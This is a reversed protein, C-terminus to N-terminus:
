LGYRKKTANYNQKIEAASLARNYFKFLAINGNVPESYSGGSSLGFHNLASITYTSIATTNTNNLVGNINIRAVFVSSPKSFTLTYHALGLSVIQDGTLTSGAYIGVSNSVVGGYLYGDGVGSRAKSLIIGQNQNGDGYLFVTQYSNPNSNFKCVTEITFEGDNNYPINYDTSTISDNTGDFVFMGANSSTIGAGNNLSLNFTNVLSFATLGSGSYSRSNAADLAFVLGDSVISTNYAIGM